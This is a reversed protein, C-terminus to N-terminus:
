SGRPLPARCILNHNSTCASFLPEEEGGDRRAIQKKDWGARCGRVFLVLAISHRGKRATQQHHSSVPTKHKGSRERERKREAALLFSSRQKDTVCVYEFFLQGSSIPSVAAGHWTRLLYVVYAVGTNYTYHVDTQVTQAYKSRASLVDLHTWHRM